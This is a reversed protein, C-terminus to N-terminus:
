CGRVGAIARDGIFDDERDCLFFRHRVKELDAPGPFVTNEDAAHMRGWRSHGAAFRGFEARDQVTPPGGGALVLQRGVGM